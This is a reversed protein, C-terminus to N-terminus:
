KQRQWNNYIFRIEVCIGLTHWQKDKMHQNLHKELKLIYAENMLAAM